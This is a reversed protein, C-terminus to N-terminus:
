AMLWDAHKVRTRRASQGQGTNGDEEVSHQKRRLARDALDVRLWGCACDVHQVVVPLELLHQAASALTLDPENRAALSWGRECGHLQQLVVLVCRSLEGGVLRQPARNLMRVHEVDGEAAANM